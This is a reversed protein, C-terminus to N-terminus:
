AGAAKWFYYDATYPVENMKGATDANCEGASPMLGGTTAIRQIYTTGALRDGDAGPTGKASLLLWPIADPVPAPRVLTGVATSGDKARWTPGGFHTTILKGNDGYLDARPGVFSWGYGSGVANCKYIQVGVAHGVLFLKHGKGVAIEPPVTPPTPKANAVQASPLAAMAAVVAAALMRRSRALTMPPGKRDSRNDKTLGSDKHRRPDVAETRVLRSARAAATQTAPMAATLRITCRAPKLGTVGPISAAV